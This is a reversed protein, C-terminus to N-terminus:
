NRWPNNAPGPDAVLDPDWGDDSRGAAKRCHMCVGTFWVSLMEGVVQVRRSSSMHKQWLVQAHMKHSLSRCQLKFDPTINGDFWELISSRLTALSDGDMFYGLSFATISGDRNVLCVADACKLNKSYEVVRLQVPVFIALTPIIPVMLEVTDELELGRVMETWKPADYYEAVLKALHGCWNTDSDVDCRVYGDRKGNFEPIAGDVDEFYFSVDSRVAVTM